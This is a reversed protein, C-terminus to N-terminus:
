PTTFPAVSMTDVCSTDLGETTGSELFAAVVDPLCGFTGVTHGLGAPVVSLSNPLEVPADAVNAPPDQPDEAGNLLLVPLDSRVADGDGPLLSAKPLLSCVFAQERMGELYSGLLYSGAGVEAITGLESRALGESCM